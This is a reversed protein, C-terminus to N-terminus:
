FQSLTECLGKFGDYSAGKTIAKELCHKAFEFSDIRIAKDATNYFTAITGYNENSFAKKFVAICDSKEGSFYIREAELFVLNSKCNDCQSQASLGVSM